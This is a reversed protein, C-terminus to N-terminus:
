LSCRSAQRLKKAWALDLLEHQRGVIRRRALAVARKQFQEIRTSDAGALGDLEIQVVQIQLRVFDTYTLALASLVANRQQAPCSM